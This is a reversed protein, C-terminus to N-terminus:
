FSFFCKLSHAELFLDAVAALAMKWFILSWICAQESTLMIFNIKGLFLPFIFLTASIVFDSWNWISFELIITEYWKCKYGLFSPLIVPLYLM